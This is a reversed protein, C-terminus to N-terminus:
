KRRKKLGKPFSRPIDIQATPEKLMLTGSFNRVEITIPLKGGSPCKIKTSVTRWGFNGRPLPISRGAISVSLGGKGSGFRFNKGSVKIKVTVDRNALQSPISVIEELKVTEPLEVGAPAAIKLTDLEDTVSVGDPLAASQAKAAIKAPDFPLKMEMGQLTGATVVCAILWGCVHKARMMM